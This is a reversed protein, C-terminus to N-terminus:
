AAEASRRPPGGAPARAPPAGMCIPATRNIRAAAALGGIHDYHGHSVFIIAARSLDIGLRSANGIVADSAGTDFLIAGADTEIWMALGHEAILDDSPSSNEVLITTRM